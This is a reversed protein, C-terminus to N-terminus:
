RIRDYDNLNRMEIFSQMQINDPPRNPNINIHLVIKILRVDAISAPVPMPNNATDAPYNTNYYYFLPTSADNVIHSAMTQTSQDGTPYTRPMTNTPDTVGMLINQNQKYSISFKM